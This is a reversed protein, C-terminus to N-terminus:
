MSRRNKFIRQRTQMNLVAQDAADLINNRFAIKKAEPTPALRSNEYLPRLAETIQDLTAQPAKPDMGVLERLSKRLYRGIPLITTGHRLSSPVDAESEDLNFQMLVSAVEHLAGHGIGPRLSMRSFEPWRGNLRPDDTRTLKKEIYGAVYGASHAELTGLHVRGFPWTSAVLSCQSCCRAASVHERTQAHRCSPYGFLAVHYHPRNTQDGYEGVLYYRLKLPHVAKRIRKLWDQTHKPELSGLGPLNEDDYTLTVFANDSHQLAELM